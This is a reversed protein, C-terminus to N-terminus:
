VSMITSLSMHLPERLETGDDLSKGPTSGLLITCEVVLYGTTAEVYEAARAATEPTMASPRDGMEGHAEEKEHVLTVVSM